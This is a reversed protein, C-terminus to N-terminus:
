LQRSYLHLKNNKKPETIPPNIEAFIKLALAGTAIDRSVNFSKDLNPKLKGVLEWGVSNNPFEAMKENFPIKSKLIPPKRIPKPVLYASPHVDPWAM